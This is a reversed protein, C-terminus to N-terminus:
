MSIEANREFMSMLDEGAYEMFITGSSQEYDFMRVINNNAVTNLHWMVNVEHKFKDMSEKNSTDNMVKAVCPIGDRTCKYVKGFGGEGIMEKFETNDGYPLAKADTSSVISMFDPIHMNLCQMFLM